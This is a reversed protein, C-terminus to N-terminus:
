RINYNIGSLFQINEKKDSFYLQKARKGNPMNLFIASRKIERKCDDNATSYSSFQIWSKKGVANCLDVQVWLQTKSILMQM